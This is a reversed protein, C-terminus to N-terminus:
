KKDGLSYNKRILAAKEVAEAARPLNSVGLEEYLRAARRMSDNDGNSSLINTMELISLYYYKWSRNKGANKDALYELYLEQYQFMAQEKNGKGEQCKALEYRAKEQLQQPVASGLTLLIKFCEIAKDWLVPNITAMEMLIEGQRGLAVFGLESDQAYNRALAFHQRALELKAALAYAEGLHLEVRGLFEDTLVAKGAEKVALIQLLIEQASNPKNLSLYCRACEYQAEPELLTDFEPKKIKSYCGMAEEYKGSSQYFDGLLMYVEPARSTQSFRSLFVESQKLAQENKGQRFLLTICKYMVLHLSSTNPYRKTIQQLIDTAMALFGSKEAVEYAAFYGQLSFMEIQCDKAIELDYNILEKKEAPTQALFEWATGYQLKGEWIKPHNPEEQIFKAFVAKAKAYHKLELLIQAENFRANKGVPFERYSDAIKQYLQVGKEKESAKIYVEAARSLIEAAHNKDKGALEAASVYGNAAESFHGDQELSDARLLAAQLRASIDLTSLQILEGFLEAAQMWNSTRRMMEGLHMTVSAYREDKPFDLRWQKLLQIAEANKQMDENIQSLALLQSARDPNPKILLATSLLQGAQLLDKEAKALESLQSCMKSWLPIRDSELTQELLKQYRALADKYQKRGTLVMCMYVEYEQQHEVSVNGAVSALFRQAVLYNEQALYGRVLQLRVALDVKSDRKIEALYRELLWTMKKWQKLEAYCDSALLVIQDTFESKQFSPNLIPLLVELCPEWKKEKWFVFGTLYILEAEVKLPLVVQQSELEKLVRLADDFKGWSIYTQALKATGKAYDVSNQLVLVRYKLFNNEANAYLHDKLALLGQRWHMNIPDEAAIETDFSFQKVDKTTSEEAILSLQIFCIWLCCLVIKKMSLVGSIESIMNGM